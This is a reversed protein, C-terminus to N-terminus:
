CCNQTSDATKQICQLQQIDSAVQLTKLAIKLAFKDLICHTQSFSDM